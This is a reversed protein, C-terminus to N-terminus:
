KEGIEDLPKATRQWGAKVMDALVVYSPSGHNMTAAFNYDKVFLDFVALLEPPLTNRAKEHKESRIGEM